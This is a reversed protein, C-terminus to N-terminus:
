RLARLLRRPSVPFTPHLDAEASADRLTDHDIALLHHDSSVVLPIEAVATEALIFADNIESEPLLNRALLAAAFRRALDLQVGALPFAQIDWDAIGSLAASALRQEESDGHESLFYLEAV